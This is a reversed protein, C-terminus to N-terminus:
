FLLLYLRGLFPGSVSRASQFNALKFQMIHRRKIDPEDTMRLLISSLRIDRHVLDVCLFFRIWRMSSNHLYAVASLLCHAMHRIQDLGFFALEKEHYQGCSYYELDCGVFPM